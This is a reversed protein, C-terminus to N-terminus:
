WSVEAIDDFCSGRGLVRLVAMVKLEMPVAPRGAADYAAAPFWIKALRVLACFIPYPVRFRRRFLGGQPSTADKVRLDHLARWWVSESYTPRPLSERRRLPTREESPQNLLELVAAACCFQLYDQKEDGDFLFESAADVEM